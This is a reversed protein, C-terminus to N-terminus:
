RQRFREHFSILILSGANWIIGAVAFALPGGLSMMAKTKEHLTAIEGFQVGYADGSALILLRLYNPIMLDFVYWSVIAVFPLVTAAIFSIAYPAAARKDPAAKMKDYADDGMFLCWLLVVVPTWSWSSTGCFAGAVISLAAGLLLYLRVRRKARCVVLATTGPMLLLASAGSLAINTAMDITEQDITMWQTIVFFLAGTAAIWIAAGTMVFFSFTRHTM